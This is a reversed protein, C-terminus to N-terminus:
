KQVDPTKQKQLSLAIVVGRQGQRARPPVLLEHRHQDGTTGINLVSVLLTLPIVSFQVKFCFPLQM